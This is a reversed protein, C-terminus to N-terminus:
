IVVEKVMSNFKENRYINIEKKLSNIFLYLEAIESRLTENEALIGENLKKERLDVKSRLITNMFELKNIKKNKETIKDQMKLCLNNEMPNIGIVKALRQLETINEIRDGNWTRKKDMIKIREM